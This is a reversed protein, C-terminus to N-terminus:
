LSKLDRRSRSTVPLARVLPAARYPLLVNRRPLAMAECCAAFGAEYIACSRGLGRQTIRPYEKTEASTSLSGDVELLRHVSGNKLPGEWEVMQM